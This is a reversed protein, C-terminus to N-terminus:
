LRIILMVGIIKSTPSAHLERLPFVIGIAETLMLELCQRRRLLARAGLVLLTVALVQGVSLEYIDHVLTLLLVTVITIDCALM